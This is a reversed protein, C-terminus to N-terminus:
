KNKNETELQVIKLQLEKNEEKLKDMAKEANELKIQVSILDHKLEYMDKDKEEIDNELSTGQKKTSISSLSSYFIIYGSRLILLDPCTLFRSGINEHLFYRLDNEYM